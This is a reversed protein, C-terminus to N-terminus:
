KNLYKKWPLILGRWEGIYSYPESQLGNKFHAIGKPTTADLGGIDFWKCGNIKAHIIAEWLLLYNAQLERGEKNTVGILYTTTDSHRISVVMGCCDGIDESENTNAIFLNFQWEKSKKTSLSTILSDSIGSFDKEIKLDRYRNLLMFFDKNSGDLISVNLGIEQSKRLSYRWKKKLKMLLQEKSSQLDLLGSAYPLTALKKLGINKLFSYNQEKDSIEPAIQVVRWRKQKFEEFLTAIVRYLIKKDLANNTSNLLLPGRNMRAIGGFLPLSISLVQAIAVVVQEDNMILFRNISWRSTEEKAQGYQWSQLMNVKQCKKLSELWEKYSSERVSYM